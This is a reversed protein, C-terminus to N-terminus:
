SSKKKNWSSFSLSTDKTYWRKKRKKTCERCKNFNTGRSPSYGYEYMPLDQHCENCEKTVVDTM